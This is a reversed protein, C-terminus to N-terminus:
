SGQRSLTGRFKAELRAEVLRAEDLRLPFLVSFMAGQGVDSVLQMEAQLLNALERSIALGLGVGGHARAHGSELQSFREFVTEQDEPAIGPGNDIVCIRVRTEGGEGPVREVRVIVRGPKGDSGVPPTFKVANSVLNFVIQRMKRPDTEILPVDQKADLEVVVGKRSALPESMGVMGRCADVPNVLERHIETKGAELKAMELLGEILELLGRAGDVINELYRQRRALDADEEGGRKIEQRAIDLLLDAFGIISNLPTRLEHSVSALFESKLRGAKDLAENVEALENLRADMAINIARLTKEREELEDLTANFTEALQQFEDGTKLECREDTNGDGVSEAWRRLASVPKVILRSTIIWFTTLAVVLVLVGATLLFLSNVAAESAAQESTRELVTFGIPEGAGIREVRAYTYRKAWGEWDSLFIEDEDARKPDSARRVIEALRWDEASRVRIEEATMPVVAADGIEGPRHEDADLPLLVWADYLARATELQGAEVLHQMRAFPLLLALLAVATVALGFLGLLKSALNLEGVLPLRM